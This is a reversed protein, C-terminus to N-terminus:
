DYGFGVAHFQGLDGVVFEGLCHWDRLLDCTSQSRLVVIDQLIITPYRM